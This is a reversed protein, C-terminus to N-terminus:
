DENNRTTESDNVRHLVPAGKGDWEAVIVGHIPKMADYVADELLNGTQDWIKSPGHLLGNTYVQRRAIQGNEYWSTHQGTLAGRSYRGTHSMTGNAHWTVYSGHLQNSEYVSQMRQLGNASWFACPGNRLGDVVTYHALKRGDADLLQLTGTMKAEHVHGWVDEELETANVSMVTRTHNNTSILIWESRTQYLFRYSIIWVIGYLVLATVAALLVLRRVFIRM